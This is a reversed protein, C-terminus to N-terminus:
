TIRQNEQLRRIV